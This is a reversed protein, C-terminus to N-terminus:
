FLNRFFRRQFQSLHNRFISGDHYQVGSLTVGSLIIPRCELFDDLPDAQLCACEALLLLLGVCDGSRTAAGSSFLLALSRAALTRRCVHDGVGFRGNRGPERGGARRIPRRELSGPAGVCLRLLAIDWHGSHTLLPCGAGYGNIDAKPPLASM